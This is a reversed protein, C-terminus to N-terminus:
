VASASADGVINCQHRVGLRITRGPPQRATVQLRNIREQKKSARYRSVAAFSDFRRIAIEDIKVPDIGGRFRRGHNEKVAQFAPRATVVRSVQQTRHRCPSPAAHDYMKPTATAGRITKLAGIM